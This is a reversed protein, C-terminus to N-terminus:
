FVAPAAYPAQPKAAILPECLVELEDLLDEIVKTGKSWFGPDTIDLGFTDKLHQATLTGGMELMEIYKQEFNEVSDEEYVGYLANVLSDGFAYSHVYFPVHMFHPIYSYFVGYDEPLPISSGFSPQVADMFHRVLAEESQPGEKKYASHARKEFDHFSIQRCLTNLMDSVKDFLLTRREADGGAKRLSDKFTLMEGFVSATEAFSLPSEVIADGKHAALYQHEAHGLEHALTAKCRPTGHWNILVMPQALRAAGPHAFAGGDKDDGLATDIWGNDIFLQVIEAMRPSFARYAEVVDACAQAFPIYPKEAGGATELPNFNRDWVNLHEQGMLKAKLMYFRQMVRPYADKAAAELADVMPATVNNALYMADWPQDFNKWRDNVSKIGMMDNFLHAATRSDQKLAAIFIEYAAKRKAQDQHESMIDLVKTQNLPETEGELIFRRATRQKDFLGVVRSEAKLETMYEIVKLPPTHPIGKRVNELWPAFKQLAPSQLLSPLAKKKIQMIEYVFYVDAADIPAVNNKFIEEDRAYKKSDQARRLAVYTAMKMQLDDKDKMEQIAAALQDGGLTKIKGKYREKLEASWQQLRAFDAKFEDSEFGDPYLNEFNWQPLVDTEKTVAQAFDQGMDSAM